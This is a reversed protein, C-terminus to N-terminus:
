FDLERRNTVTLERRVGYCAQAGESHLCGAAERTANSSHVQPWWMQIGRQRDQM